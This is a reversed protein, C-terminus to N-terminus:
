CLANRFFKESVIIRATRCAAAGLAFLGSNGGLLFRLFYTSSTTIVCAPETFFYERGMALIDNCMSCPKASCHQSQRFSAQCVAGHMGDLVAPTMAHPILRPHSPHHQGPKNKAHRCKWEAEQLSRFGQLYRPKPAEIYAVGRHADLHSVTAM